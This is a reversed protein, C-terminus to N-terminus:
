SPFDIEELELRYFGQEGRDNPQEEWGEFLMDNYAGQYWHTRRLIDRIASASTLRHRLIIPIIRARDTFLGVVYQDEEPSEKGDQTATTLMWVQGEPALTPARELRQRTETTVARDCHACTWTRVSVFPHGCWDPDDPLANYNREAM